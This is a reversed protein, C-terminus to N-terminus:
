SFIGTADQVLVFQDHGKQLVFAVLIRKYKAPSQSSQVTSISNYLDPEDNLKRRSEKSIYAYIATMEIVLSYSNYINSRFSARTQSDKTPNNLPGILASDWFNGTEYGCDAPLVGIM